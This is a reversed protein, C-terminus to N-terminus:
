RLFELQFPGPLPLPLQYIKFPFDRDGYVPPKPQCGPDDSKEIAPANESRENPDKDDENGNEDVFHPM